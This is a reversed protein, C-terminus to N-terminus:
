RVVRGSSLGVNLAERIATDEVEEVASLHIYFEDAVKKGATPM